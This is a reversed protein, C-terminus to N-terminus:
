NNERLQCLQEFQAERFEQNQKEHIESKISSAYASIRVWRGKIKKYAEQRQVEGNLDVSRLQFSQRKCQASLLYDQLKQNPMSPVIALIHINDELINEDIDRIHAVGEEVIVTPLRPSLAFVPFAFILGWACLHIKM